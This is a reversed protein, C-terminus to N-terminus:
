TNVPLVHRKEGQHFCMIPRTTSAWYFLELECRHFLALKKFKKSFFKEVCINKPGFIKVLIKKRGFYKEVWFTNISRCFQLMLNLNATGMTYNDQKTSDENIKLLKKRPGNYLICVLTHTM